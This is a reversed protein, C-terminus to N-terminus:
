RATDSAAVAVAAGAEWCRDNKPGSVQRRLAGLTTKIQRLSKAHQRLNHDREKAAQVDALSLEHVCQSLRQPFYYCIATPFYVELIVGLFSQIRDSRAQKPVAPGILGGTFSWFSVDQPKRQTKILSEDVKEICCSLQM